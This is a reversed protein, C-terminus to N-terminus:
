ALSLFTKNVRVMGSNPGLWGYSQVRREIAFVLLCYRNVDAPQRCPRYATVRLRWCGGMKGTRKGAFPSSRLEHAARRSNDAMPVM